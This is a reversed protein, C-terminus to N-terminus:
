AYSPQAAAAHAHKILTVVDFVPLGVAQQIARSFPPMNTCELIIAGVTPHCRVLDVAAAVMERRCANMDMDRKGGLFVSAFEGSADMGVVARPIDRIGIGHFHRQTLSRRDATIVGVEQDSRLVARCLHLQLLSSSYVPINVADALHRHFVALFGCSTAIARVGQGALLRAADIFAQLLEPDAEKVVKQPSAGAVVHYRVPFPFTGPNGVDGPLRPFATDLMVIGIVPTASDIDESASSM